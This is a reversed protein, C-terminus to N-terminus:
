HLVVRLRAQQQGEEVWLTYVGPPLPPLHLLHQGQSSFVARGLPDFLLTRYTTSPPALHLQGRAPNPFVTVPLERTAAFPAPTLAPSLQGFFAGTSGTSPWSMSDFLASQSFSGCALVAGTPNYALDFVQAFQGAPVTALWRAEGSSAEFGAIFADLNSASSASLGDFGMTGQYGGGIALQGGHEAISLAQQFQPGGLARAYIAEGQSSYKLLFFDPSTTSSQIALEGSLTMVGVLYGTAYVHGEADSALALIEEDFVGGAKRAWRVEGFADYCALFGDRDSTNANFTENGIQTVANFYGGIAISGDPLVALDHARTDGSLGAQRAWRTSGNGELVATFSYTAGAIGMSELTIHGLELTREFFGAIALSGDSRAAIGGLGKLGQGSISHAWRLQGQPSFRAVFLSRPNDPPSTLLTDALQLEFWFAGACAIDGSPLIALSSIEDDQSSGAGIAWELEQDANFVALFLDSRGQSAAQWGGFAITEDFAGGVVVRGGPAAAMANCTENGAGDLPLAWAWNQTHASFSSSALVTLLAIKILLAM